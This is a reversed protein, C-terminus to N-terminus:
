GGGSGSAKRGSSSPRCTRCGCTTRCCRWTGPMRAELFGTVTALPTQRDVEPPPEGLGENLGGALALASVPSLLLLLVLLNRHM